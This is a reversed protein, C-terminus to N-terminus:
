ITNRKYQSQPRASDFGRKRAECRNEFKHRRREAHNAVPGTEIIKFPGRLLQRMWGLQFTKKNAKLTRIQDRLERNDKKSADFNAKAEKDRWKLFCSKCGCTPKKTAKYRSANSCKERDFRM